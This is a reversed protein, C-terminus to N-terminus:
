CPGTIQGRHWCGQLGVGVIYDSRPIQFAAVDALQLAGLATQVTVM